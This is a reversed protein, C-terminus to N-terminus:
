GSAKFRLSLPWTSGLRTDSVALIQQGLIQMLIAWM